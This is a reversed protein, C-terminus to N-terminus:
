VVAAAGKEHILRKWFEHTEEVVERAYSAPKCEGDFAFANIVGSQSKYLRLWDRLAGILGPLHLDVDAVDNILKALPDFQNIVIVKWDTEGSDIMALVGLIKVRVISGTSWQKSGIEIADLPDNDGRAGTDATVHEPDEWTQPFAGYNFLMDGWYYERPRGNQTDQKIPNFMERTAIEMKRRTWKPIEVIFNASGDANWLPVDHWPSLQVDEGTETDKFFFNVRHELTGPAGLTKTFVKGVDPNAIKAKLFKFRTHYVHDTTAQGDRTWYLLFEDFTISDRGAGALPTSSRGLMAVIAEQAEEESIPEGLREHMVRLERATVTGSGDSDFLNFIARLDKLDNPAIAVEDGHQTPVRQLRLPAPAPFLAAEGKPVLMDLMQKLEDREQELDAIRKAEVSAADGGAGAGEGGTVVSPTPATAGSRLHSLLLFGGLGVAGLAAAAVAKTRTSM